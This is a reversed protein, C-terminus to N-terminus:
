KTTNILTTVGRALDPAVLDPRGSHPTQGHLNEALFSNPSPGAGIYFPTQFTGDGNGVFIAITGAQMYAIDLVGDGNLDAVVAPGPTNTADPLTEKLKFGGQGDGLYVSIGGNLGMTIIMDMHGGPILRGFYIGAPDNFSGMDIVHQTFGGHQNNLLVYIYGHLADTLVVDPWGDGNLDAAAVDTFGTYLTGPLVHPVFPAPTQFTGDGNGLALLNGSGAWDLKGDRNFDALALYGSAAPMPSLQTFTGDGKGLYATVVAPQQSAPVLLDPIGDGNLDGTVLCGPNALPLNVGPTFPTVTSGTGLLVSIGQETNMALDPKGDGNYDAAVGCGPPSPLPTWVIDEFTGKGRSLLVSVVGAGGQVVLDTLGNQRLDAPVVNFTGFESSQVPHYVPPGFTGNGKGLAVYVFSNILDPIGDGNVDAIAFDWAGPLAAKTPASFGGAGNGFFLYVYPTGLKATTVAIDKNGDMNVDAAVLCCPEFPTHIVTPSRFTGNGNGLLIAIGTRTDVVLDLKGDKNFDASAIDNIGINKVPILVGPNFTGGGKGTFLWIGESGVTAADLVGDDNFDGLVVGGGLGTDTGAQYFVVPQFTGDGNGFSVGVGNPVQAGKLGGSIVLDIKGDGNLDATALRGGEMGTNTEPGQRFSGDGNGFLVTVTGASSAIVDPIGDGNTDAVAVFSTYLGAYDRRAFFTPTTSSAPTADGLVGILFVALAAANKM